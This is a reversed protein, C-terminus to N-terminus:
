RPEVALHTVPVGFREKAEDGAGRELWTAEDEPRTAVIVEDAPFERLADAIAKLPDPDGVQTDVRADASVDRAADDAVEQAREREADEDSTLWKLPSLEAMPVVIRIEAEGGAMREHVQERLVAADVPVTAVVLLRRAAM